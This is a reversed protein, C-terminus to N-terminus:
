DRFVHYDDNVTLQEDQSTVEKQSAIDLVFEKLDDVTLYGERLAAFDSLSPTKVLERTTVVSGECAHYLIIQAHSLENNKNM